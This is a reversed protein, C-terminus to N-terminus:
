SKLFWIDVVLTCTFRLRKFISISIITKDLREIWNTMMYVYQRLVEVNGYQKGVQKHRMSM